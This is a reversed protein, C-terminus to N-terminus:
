GHFRKQGGVLGKMAFLHELGSRAGPDMMERISDQDLDNPSWGEELTMEVLDFDNDNWSTCNQVWQYCVRIHLLVMRAEVNEIPCM